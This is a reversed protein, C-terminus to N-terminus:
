WLDAVVTLENFDSSFTAFRNIIEKSDTLIHKSKNKWEFIFAIEVNEQRTISKCHRQRGYFM